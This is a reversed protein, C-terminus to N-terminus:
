AAGWAIEGRVTDVKVEVGLPFPVNAGGHGFPLGEVV